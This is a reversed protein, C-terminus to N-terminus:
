AVTLSDTRQLDGFYKILFDTFEYSSKYESKVYQEIEKAFKNMPEKFQLINNKLEFLDRGPIKKIQVKKIITKCEVSGIIKKTKIGHLVLSFKAM